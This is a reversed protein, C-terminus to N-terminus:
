TKLNKIVSTAKIIMSMVTQIMNAKVHNTIPKLILLEPNIEIQTLTKMKVPDQNSVKLSKRGNTAKITMSMTLVITNAKVHNTVNRNGAGGKIIKVYGAKSSDKHIEYATKQKCFFVLLVFAM